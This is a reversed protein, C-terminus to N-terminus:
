VNLCVFFQLSKIFVRISTSCDTQLAIVPGDTELLNLSDSKSVIPVHFLYTQRGYAGAVKRMETLPQTSGLAMTRVSPNHWHLIGTVGVPISGAAKPKYRLAEVLQSMAHGMIVWVSCNWNRIIYKPTLLFDPNVLFTENTGQVFGSYIM